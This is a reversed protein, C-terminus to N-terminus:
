TIDFPGGPVLEWTAGGDTSRQLWIRTAGSAPLDVDVLVMGTDTGDYTPDSTQSPATPGSGADFDDVGWDSVVEVGTDLTSWVRVAATHHGRGVPLSTPLYSRDLEGGIRGTTWMREGTAPDLPSPAQDATDPDAGYGAFLAVEYGTQSRGSANSYTWSIPDGSSAPGTVTVTPKYAYAITARVWNIRHTQLGAVASTSWIAVGLRTFTSVASGDIDRWPGASDTQATDAVLTGYGVPQRQAARTIADSGSIGVPAVHLLSGVVNAQHNIEVTISTPFTGAPLTTLDLEVVEFMRGAVGATEVWQGGATSDLHDHLSSGITPTTAARLELLALAYDETAGWLVTGGGTDIGDALMAGLWAQLTTADGEATGLTAYGALAGEDSMTSSILPADTYYGTTLAKAGLALLLSGDNAPTLTPWTGSAGSGVASAVTPIPDTAHLGTAREAPEALEVRPRQFQLYGGGDHRDRRNM